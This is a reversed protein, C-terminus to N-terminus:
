QEGIRHIYAIVDDLDKEDALSSAMFRMQKGYRDGPDSGRVGEKFLNFQRKLYAASLGALRPSKLADNGEAKGGHCAGCSGQYLNNGRRVDGEAKEGPTTLPLSAIYDAVKHMEAESQLVSVMARMQAGNTDGAASGRVGSKFHKLQRFLYDSSQGNLAQGNLEVRGEGQKGHCAICSDYLVEGVASNVALTLGLVGITSLITPKM